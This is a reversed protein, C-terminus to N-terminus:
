LYFKGQSKGHGLAYDQYKCMGDKRCGDCSKQCHKAPLKIKVASENNSTVIDDRM